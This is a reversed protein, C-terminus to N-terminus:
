SAEGQYPNNWPQDDTTQTENGKNNLKSRDFIYNEGVWVSQVEGAPKKENLWRNYGIIGHKLSVVNAFGKKQKIYANTKRCRIGGTCYTLIPKDAPVGDLVKDLAEWSDSFIKTNLPIAGTFNGIDSEYDNRCDILVADKNNSVLFHWEDASAERGYNELDLPINHNDTLIYNKKKVLLKKFPFEQGEYSKTVGINLDAEGLKPDITALVDTFELLHSTKVAFQGNYGEAAILLTGKVGYDSLCEDARKVISDLDNKGLPTFLFFSLSTFLEPSSPVNSCFLRTTTRLFPSVFLSLVPM